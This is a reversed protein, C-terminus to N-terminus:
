GELWKISASNRTSVEIVGETVTGLTVNKRRLDMPRVSNVRCTLHQLHYSGHYVESCSVQDCPPSQVVPGYWPRIFVLDDGSGRRALVLKSFMTIMNTELSLWHLNLAISIIRWTVKCQRKLITYRSTAFGIKLDHKHIPDMRLEVIRFFPCTPFTQKGAIGYEGM